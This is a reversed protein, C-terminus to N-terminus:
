GNGIAISDLTAGLIEGTQAQIMVYGMAYADTGSVHIHWMGGADTVFEAWLTWAKTEAPSIGYAECLADVALQKAAAKFIEADAIAEPVITTLVVSRKIKM